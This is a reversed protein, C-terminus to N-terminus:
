SVHDLADDGIVDHRVTDGSPKALERVHPNWSVIEAIQLEIKNSTVRASDARWQRLRLHTCHHQEACVNEREAKAANTQLHNLKQTLHEIASDMWDDGFLSRNSSTAIQRRQSM